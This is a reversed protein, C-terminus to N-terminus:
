GYHVSVTVDCNSLMAAIYFSSCADGGFRCILCDIVCSKTTWSRTKFYVFYYLVFHTICLIAIPVTLTM